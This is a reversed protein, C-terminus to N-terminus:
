RYLTVPGALGMAAPEQIKRGENTWYQAVPNDTLSKMLNVMPTKIVIRLSNEGKKVAGSIDFIRDGYWRQGCSIGNLILECEGYVKGANLYEPLKEGSNFKVSAVITGSFNEYGPIELLNCPKLNNLPPVELGTTHTFEMDWGDEIVLLDEGSVPLPRWQEGQKERSFIIIRSEGPALQIELYESDIMELRYRQGNEANWLWPFRNKRIGRNIKILGSYSDNSSSNLLFLIEDGTDTRYRVQMFYPDPKDIGLYSPLLYEEEIKSYWEIFSVGQPEQLLIYRDTYKMMAQSLEEVRRDREHYNKYGHSRSPYSGICFIRGGGAVFDHLKEMVEPDVGRLGPLFIVGYSKKGFRLEGKEVVSDNIVRDSIYDAAGGNKCIAEWLLSTYTVNLKEPFPDTQVGMSGWMDYNAPLIAMDTYMDANQLLASIRARYSNLLGFWPWWNNKENIYSGYQIWGPFPADPPSYNFGHWVSHTIGSIVSQDSGVKLRELSTNFVLYTNTMEECSVIRTGALHAASSVYKNIMTYARGRRYDSDPMEEGVRHKLWNTTWSEGEPIDYGLSTDLPFFGRGYAQARTKVGKERCWDLYTSTFREYLLEAKTLEFDFRVRETAEAFSRSKEVGYKDDIVAGLRGVRFMIFPLWPTLDYGRRRLFEDEFDDCWNSGELEMSDTFLARLHGSLPGTKEEITDSMRDLYKRVAKQDMHDLIPGDAGPAGNIVGAFSKVNVITYLAHKGAPIEVRIIEDGALHSLDIASDLSGLPDPVLKISMISFSRGPFPETVGPDAKDFIKKRPIELISPGEAHEVNLIIVEAREEPELYESGFPWGSGVILDCTLGLNKAEDFAVGLMEIWEGSLWELSPPLTMEGAIRSPFAIPNIEVGGIGANKLLHLERIIEKKEIRNGNWWWRVFPHYQLPPNKFLSYLDDVAPPCSDAAPPLYGFSILSGGAIALSSSIFRRRDM